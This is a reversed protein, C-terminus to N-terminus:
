ARGTKWERGLLWALYGGGVVGTVVGVAYERPQFAEQAVLDTDSMESM